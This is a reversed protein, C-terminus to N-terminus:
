EALLEVSHLETRGSSTQICFIYLESEINYEINCPTKLLTVRMSRLFDESCFTEKSDGVLGRWTWSDKGLDRLRLKIQERCSGEWGKELV